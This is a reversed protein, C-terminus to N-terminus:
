PMARPAVSVTPRKMANGPVTQEPNAIFCYLTGENWIFDADELAPSYNYGDVSGALRGVIRYLNPGLRNDGELTLFTLRTSFTLATM